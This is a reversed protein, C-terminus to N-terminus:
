ALEVLIANMAEKRILHASSKCDIKRSYGESQAVIKGNSARFRFYWKPRRFMKRSVYMEIKM